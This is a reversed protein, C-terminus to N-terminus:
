LVRRWNEAIEGEMQRETVVDWGTPNPLEYAEKTAVVLIASLCEMKGPKTSLHKHQRYHLAFHYAEAETPGHMWSSDWGCNLCLAKFKRQKM